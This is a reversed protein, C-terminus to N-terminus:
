HRISCVVCRNRDTRRRFLLQDAALAVFTGTSLRDDHIKFFLAVVVAM